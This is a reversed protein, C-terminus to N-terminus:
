NYKKSLLIKAHTPLDINVGIDKNWQENLFPLTYHDLYKVDYYQSVMNIFPEIDIPLYNERVERDWNDVYRYKLLYHIYRQVTIPYGWHEAFEMVMKKSTKKELINCLHINVIQHNTDTNVFMDRIAIHDFNMNLLRNMTEQPESDYSYIEHIVSSLILTAGTCDVPANLFEQATVFKADPVNTRAVNLMDESIDVGVLTYDPHLERIHKLLTGDACGYDVIIKSSVKNVWWLKDDMGNQMRRLYGEFDKIEEM